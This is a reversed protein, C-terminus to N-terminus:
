KIAGFRYAAAPDSDLLARGDDVEALAQPPEGAHLSSHEVAPARRLPLLAQRRRRLVAAAARSRWRAGAAHGVAAPRSPAERM